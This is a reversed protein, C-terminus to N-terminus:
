GQPVASGTDAVAVSAADAGLASALAYGTGGGPLERKELEGSALLRTLLAYLVSREVSSARAIEAPSAGPREGVAALVRQRNQGRPARPRPTMRNPSRGSRRRRAPTPEPAEDVGDLAVLAREIRASEERAARTQELRGELETRIRNLLDNPM